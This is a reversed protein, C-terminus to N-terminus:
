ESGGNVHRDAQLARGVFELEGDLTALHEIGSRVEAALTVDVRLSVGVFRFASETVRSAEM